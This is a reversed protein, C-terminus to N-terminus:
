GNGDIGENQADVDTSVAKELEKLIEEFRTVANCAKDAVVKDEIHPIAENVMGIKGLVEVFFDASAFIVFIDKDRIGELFVPLAENYEELMLDLAKDIEADSPLDAPRVTETM